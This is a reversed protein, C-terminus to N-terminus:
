TFSSAMCGSPWCTQLLHFFNNKGWWYEEPNAVVFQVKLNHVTELLFMGPGNPLLLIIHLNVQMNKGWGIRGMLFINTPTVWIM